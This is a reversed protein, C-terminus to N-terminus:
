KSGGALLADIEAREEPAPNKKAMIQQTASPPIPKGPFRLDDRWNRNALFWQPAKFARQPRGAVIWAEWWAIYRRYGAVARRKEDLNLDKWFKGILQYPAEATYGKELVEKAM